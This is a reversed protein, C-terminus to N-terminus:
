YVHEGEVNHWTRINQQAKVESTVCKSWTAEKKPDGDCWHGRCEQHTRGM